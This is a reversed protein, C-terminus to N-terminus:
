LICCPQEHAQEAIGESAAIKCTFFAPYSVMAPDCRHDRKRGLNRMPFENAKSGPHYRSGRAHSSVQEHALLFSASASTM